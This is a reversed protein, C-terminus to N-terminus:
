FPTNEVNHAIQWARDAEIDAPSEEVLSVAQEQKKLLIQIWNANIDYLDKGQWLRFSLRGAVEVRMGKRLKTGAEEALDDWCTCSFWRTDNNKGNWVALSFRTVAKGGPTYSMEADKGLNGIMRVPAIGFDGDRSERSTILEKKTTQEQEEM